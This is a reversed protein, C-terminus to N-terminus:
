LRALAKDLESQTDWDWIWSMRGDLNAKIKELDDGEPGLM